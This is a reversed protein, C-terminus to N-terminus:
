PLYRLQYPSLQGAGREYERWGAAALSMHGVRAEIWRPLGRRDVHTLWDSLSKHYFTYRPPGGAAEPPVVRLYQHLKALLSPLQKFPELGSAAALQREDLPEQAAALVEFLREPGAFNAEDPFQAAFRNEYLASLGPPLNDLQEATLVGSEFDDLAQRVYLFNGDSKALLLGAVRAASRRAQALREQLNPQSLRLRVYEAVDALNESSHADIEAPQLGKLRSLVLPENRTTAVVRLWAPLKDLNAALVEVITPKGTPALLAEDLADILLYRLGEVPAPLAHLPTLITEAFLSRPDDAQGDTALKRRILEDSRLRDAFAESKSTIMAALSRVFRHSDLTEPLNWQCCHYALVQGDPNQHVLEAVITSKGVGAEGHVLLAPKASADARWADIRDFLWQRGVFHRRRSFLFPAFDFAQLEHFWSRYRPPEGRLHAHIGDILRALGARYQDDSDTWSRLDVYDLHFLTLPPDCQQAMVPVVPQPPPNFLAYAIESLCVSDIRDPSSRSTRVSHPTMVAVVVQASRLGDVIEAQWDYGARIERTDRWVDFGAATLDICLRDVLERADKRGYSVFVKPKGNSPSSPTPAAAIDLPEVPGHQPCVSFQGVIHVPVRCQPCVLPM